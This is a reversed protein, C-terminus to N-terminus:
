LRQGGFGGRWAWPAPGLEAHAQSQSSLLALVLPLAPSGTPPPAPFTRPLPPPEGGGGWFRSPFPPPATDMQGDSVMKDGERWGLAPLPTVAMSLLISLAM